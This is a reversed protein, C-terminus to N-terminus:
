QHVLLAARSCDTLSLAPTTLMMVMVMVMPSSVVVVVVKLVLNVLSLLEKQISERRLQLDGPLFSGCGTLWDENSHEDGDGLEETGYGGVVDGPLNKRGGWRPISGWLEAKWGGGGLRARVGGGASSDRKM